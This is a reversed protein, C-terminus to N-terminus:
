RHVKKGRQHVVGVGEAGDGGGVGHAVDVGHAALHEQGQVHGGEGVVQALVDQDLDQAAAGVLHQLRAAEDGAAVRDDVVLGLVAEADHAEDVGLVDEGLGAGPGAVNEVQGLGQAGADDGGGGHAVQGLGAVQLAATSLM